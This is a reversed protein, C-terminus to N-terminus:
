LHTQNRRIQVLRSYLWHLPRNYVHDLAGVSRVLQGGFGRKFRYVGWLGDSRTAFNAELVERDHDPVGYLDYLRCGRAKAWRIAAWQLAYNPMTDRHENSSAGFMYWAKQGCAFAMLGAIPQEDVTAILLRVMDHPQFLELAREYYAASRTGFQDREGTVTMLSAFTAVDKRTGAHVRVNRRESLRINYRTKSKMGKLIAEEPQGIDVVISRRPQVPQQSPRFGSALADEIWRPAPSSDTVDPEIKLLIARNTRCRAHMAVLLARITDASASDILPGKPVYAMTWGLALPRFLIQAGAVLNNGQRLAVRQARWGFESKLEAWATTQLLHGGSSAIVFQDWDSDTIQDDVWTKTM